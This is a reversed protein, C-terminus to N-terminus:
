FMRIGNFSSSAAQYYAAERQDTNAQLYTQVCKFILRGCGVGGCPRAHGAHFPSKHRKLLNVEGPETMLPTPPTPLEIETEM